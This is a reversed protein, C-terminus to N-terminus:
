EPAEGGDVEAWLILYAQAVIPLREGIITAPRASLGHGGKDLESLLRPARPVKVACEGNEGGNGEATEPGIDVLLGLLEDEGDDFADGGWCVVGLQEIDHAHHRRHFAAGLDEIM